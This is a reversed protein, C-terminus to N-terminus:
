NAYKVRYFLWFKQIKKRTSNPNQGLAGHKSPLGEIEENMGVTM